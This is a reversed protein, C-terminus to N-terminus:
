RLQHGRRYSAAITFIAYPDNDQLVWNGIKGQRTLDATPIGVMKIWGTPLEIDLITAM